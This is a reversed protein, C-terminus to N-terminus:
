GPRASPCRRRRLFSSRHRYGGAALGFYDLCIALLGPSVPDGSTCTAIRDSRMLLRVSCKLVWTLSLWERRPNSLITLWRRVSARNGAACWRPSSCSKSRSARCGGIIKYGRPACSAGRTGHAFAHSANASKIRRRHRQRRCAPASLTRRERCPLTRFAMAPDGSATRMGCRVTVRSLKEGDQEHSEPSASFWSLFVCHEIHM